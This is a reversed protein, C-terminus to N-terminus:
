AVLVHSPADWGIGFWNRPLVCLVLGCVQVSASDDGAFVELTAKRARVPVEEDWVGGRLAEGVEKPLHFDLKAPDSPSPVEIPSFKYSLDVSTSFIRDSVEALTTYADRIFSTFSSGTTKLVPLRLSL